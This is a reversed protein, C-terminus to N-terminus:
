LACIILSLLLNGKKCSESKQYSSSYCMLFVRCNDVAKSMAEVTCGAMKETDVWCSLDANKLHGVIDNITDKNAWSYSIMVDHTFQGYTSVAM